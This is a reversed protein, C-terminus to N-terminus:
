EMLLLRRGAEMRVGLICQAGCLREPHRLPLVLSPPLLGGVLVLAGGVAAVM